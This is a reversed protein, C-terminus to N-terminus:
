AERGFRCKSHRAELAVSFYAREAIANSGPKQQVGNDHGPKVPGDLHM